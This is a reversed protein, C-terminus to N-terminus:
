SLKLYDISKQKAVAKSIMPMVAQSTLKLFGLNINELKLNLDKIEMEIDDKFKQSISKIPEIFEEYKPMDNMSSLNIPIFILKVENCDVKIDGCITINDKRILIKFKENNFSSFLIKPLSHFSKTLEFSYSVIDVVYQGSFVMNYTGISFKHPHIMKREQIIPESIATISIQKFLFERAIINSIRKITKENKTYEEYRLLEQDTLNGIREALISERENAEKELYTKM